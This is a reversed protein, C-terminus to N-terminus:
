KTMARQPDGVNGCTVRTWHALFVQVLLTVVAECEIPQRIARHDRDPLELVLDHIRELDREARRTWEIRRPAAM